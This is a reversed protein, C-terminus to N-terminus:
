GASVLRAVRKAARNAFRRRRDDDIRDMSYLGLFRTTAGARLHPRLGRLVIRRGIGGTAANVFRSSGHTSVAVVVGVERLSRAELATELWAMCPAPLSSWWTPYVLVLAETGDPLHSPLWGDPLERGAYLDVSTVDDGLRDVIRDRLFAGYSDPIPHCLVVTTSM